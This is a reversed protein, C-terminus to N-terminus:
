LQSKMITEICTHCAYRACAGSRTPKVLFPAAQRGVQHGCNVCLEDHYWQDVRIGTFEIGDYRFIVTHALVLLTSAVPAPTPTV